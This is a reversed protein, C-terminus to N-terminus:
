PQRSTGIEGLTKSKGDQFETLAKDLEVMYESDELLSRRFGKAESTETSHQRKYPTSM